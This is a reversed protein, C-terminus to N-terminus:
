TDERRRVRAARRTSAESTHASPGARPPAARPADGPAAGSPRSGPGRLPLEEQAGAAPSRGRPGSSRRRRAPRSGGAGEIAPEGGRAFGFALQRPAPPPGPPPGGEHERGPTGATPPGPGSPARACAPTRVRPTGRGLPGDGTGGASPGDPGRVQRPRPRQGPGDAEAPGHGFGDRAGGAVAGASAPGEGAKVSRTWEELRRRAAALPDGRCPAAGAAEATAFPGVWPAAAGRPRFYWGDPSAPPSAEDDCWLDGTDFRAVQRDARTPRAM